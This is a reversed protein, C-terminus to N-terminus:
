YEGAFYTVEIPVSCTIGERVIITDHYQGEPFLPSGCVYLLEEQVRILAREQIADLRRASYVVRRKGCEICHVFGRM